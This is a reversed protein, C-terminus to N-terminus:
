CRTICRGPLITYWILASIIQPATRDVYSEWPNIFGKGNKNHHRLKGTDKPVAGTARSSSSVTAYLASSTTSSSM